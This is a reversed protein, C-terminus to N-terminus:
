ERRQRHRLLVIFGVCVTAFLAVVGLFGVIPGINAVGTNTSAPTTANPAPSETPAATPLEPELAQGTAPDCTIGSEYGAEADVTSPRSYDFLFSDSTTHGDSSVVQWLVTYQGSDGLAVDTAITAGDLTVCGRNAYTGDPGKVQVAFPATSGGITLFNQSFTLEVSKLENNITSGASPSSGLLGDHASAAGAGGVTVAVATAVAALALRSTRNM